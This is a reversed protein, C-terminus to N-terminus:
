QLRRQGVLDGELKDSATAVPVLRFRLPALEEPILGRLCEEGHM